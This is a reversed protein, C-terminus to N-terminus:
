AAARLEFVAHHRAEELYDAPSSDRALDYWRQLLSAAVPSALFPALADQMVPAAEEATLEIAVVVEHHRGRRLVAEGAARLNRVWNVEGFTAFVYQRGGCEGFKLASSQGGMEVLVREIARVRSREPEVHQARRSGPM